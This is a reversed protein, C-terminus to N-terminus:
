SLSFCFLHGTQISLLWSPQSYRHFKKQGPAILVRPSQSTSLTKQRNKTMKLSFKKKLFQNLFLFAFYIVPRGPYLDLPNSTCAYIKEGPHALLPHSRCPPIHKTQTKLRFIALVSFFCRGGEWDWGSNTAGPLFNKVRVGLGRSKYGPRGTM